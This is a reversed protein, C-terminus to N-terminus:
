QQKCEAKEGKAVHIHPVNRVVRGGRKGRSSGDGDEKMTGEKKQKKKLEAMEEDETVSRKTQSGDDDVVTVDEMISVCKKKSGADRTLPVDALSLNPEQETLPERHDQITAAAASARTSQPCKDVTPGSFSGPIETATKKETPEKPKKKYKESIPIKETYGGKVEKDVVIGNEALKAKLEDMKLTIMVNASKIRQVERETGYLTRQCEILQDELSMRKTRESRLEREMKEKEKKVQELKSQYFRKLGDLDMNVGAGEAQNASFAPMKQNQVTQLKQTLTQVEGRSQSLMQELREVQDAAVRGRDMQLLGAIQYKLGHVQQKKHNLQKQLADHHIQLSIMKKEIAQRKDEVEAFLSNGKKNPDTSELKILDLEAQLEELQKHTEQLSRSYTLCQQHEEEARGEVEENRVKLKHNTFRLQELEHGMDKVRSSLQIKETTLSIVDEQITSLREESTTTVDMITINSISRAEELDNELTSVQERLQENQIRALELDSRVGECTTKVKQVERSHELELREKLRRTEQKLNEIESANHREMSKNNALQMQLSYKEQELEEIQRTHEIILDENRQELERNTELLDKGFSAAKHVNAESEYLERKLREIKEELDM